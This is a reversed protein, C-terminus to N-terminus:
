DRRMARARTRMVNLYGRTRAEAQRLLRRKTQDPTEEPPPGPATQADRAADTGRDGARKRM